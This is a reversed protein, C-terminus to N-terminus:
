KGYLHGEARDICMRSLRGQLMEASGSSMGRDGSPADEGIVPLFGEARMFEPSPRATGRGDEDSRRNNLEKESVWM